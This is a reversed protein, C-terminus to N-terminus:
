WTMSEAPDDLGRIHRVARRATLPTGISRVVRNVDDGITVIPLEPGTDREQPMGATAVLANCICKRGITRFLLGGKKEFDEVPESPCRYVVRQEEKKTRPNVVTIENGERLYGLDCVRARGDYAGETSMTGDLEAVKFPFGTPSALKDTYVSIDRGAMIEDVMRQKLAPDMGSEQTLAFLSGVQVGVAGEAQARELGDPSGYGGAMWFPFGSERMNQLNAYDRASYVPQGRSDLDKGRAPANHGGAIPEEIIFGDPPVAAQSFPRKVLVDNTIITLMRPHSVEHATAGYDSPNFDIAWERTARGVKIPMSVPEGDALQAIYRPIEVPLGAGMAILDVDAQMAGYLTHLNPEEIKTLLNMGVLGNGRARQKALTVEVFAGLVALDAAVKPPNLGFMSVSKYREGSQRGGEKYFLRILKEAIEPVPYLGLASLIEGTPDGDQLRRALVVGIATGSVLGTAGEHAVAGALKYDSIAVGMGGQMVDLARNDPFREISKAM